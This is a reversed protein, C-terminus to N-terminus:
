LFVSYTDFNYLITSSTESLGDFIAIYFRPCYKQASKLDKTHQHKRGLELLEQKM